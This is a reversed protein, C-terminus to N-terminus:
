SLQERNWAGTHSTRYSEALGRAESIVRECEAWATKDGTLAANCVSVQEMDGHAAAEDRLYLIEAEHIASM